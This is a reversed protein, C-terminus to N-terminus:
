INRKEGWKRGEVFKDKGCNQRMGKKVKRGLGQFLNGKRGRQFSSEKGMGTRKDAMNQICRGYVRFDQGIGEARRRVKKPCGPM